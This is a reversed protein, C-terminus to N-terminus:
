SEYQEKLKVMLEDWNKVKDVKWKRAEFEQVKAEGIEKVLNARFEKPM